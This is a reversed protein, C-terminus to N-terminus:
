SRPKYDLYKNTLTAFTLPNLSSTKQDLHSDCRYSTKQGASIQTIIQLLQYYPISHLKILDSLAIGPSLLVHRRHM